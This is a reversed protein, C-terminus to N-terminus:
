DVGAEDTAGDWTGECLCRAAAARPSASRAGADLEVLRAREGPSVAGLRGLVGRRVGGASPLCLPGMVGEDERVSSCFACALERGYTM